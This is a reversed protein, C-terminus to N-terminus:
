VGKAALRERLDDLPGSNDRQFHAWREADWVEFYDTMGIIQVEKALGAKERYDPSIQIRGQPDLTVDLGRSIYAYRFQRADADLRPLGAVKAELVEWSKLPHVDLATGNPVIVLREGFGDSLVERFKAPISLRGKPDITHRFHGRFVPKGRLTVPGRLWTSGHWKM